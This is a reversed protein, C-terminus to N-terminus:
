ERRDDYAEREAKEWIAEELWRGVTKGTARAHEGALHLAEREMRVSLNPTNGTPPRGMRKKM